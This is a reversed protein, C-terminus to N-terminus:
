APPRHTLLKLARQINPHKNIFQAIDIAWMEYAIKSPHVGDSFYDTQLVPLNRFHYRKVWDSLTIHHPHYYTDKHHLVLRDLEEALMERWNGLVLKIPKTFAPLERIPPLDIFVIPANQFRERLTTILQQLDRKWRRPRNLQFTDNGGIGVVVLDVEESQETIQPLINEQLKRATFGRKAYVKWEVTMQFLQSLERALTGTFGEEHTKVGVGAISSEGITLVRLRKRLQHLVAGENGTAEPLVPMKKRVRKSQWYMLPWLPLTWIAKLRSTIRM